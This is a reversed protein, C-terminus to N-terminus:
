YGYPSDLDPMVNSNSTAQRKLYRVGLIEESPISRVEINASKGSSELCIVNGDVLEIFVMFHRRDVGYLSQVKIIAINESELGCQKLRDVSVKECNTIENDQMWVFRLNLSLKNLNIWNIQGNEDFCEGSALEQGYEEFSKQYGCLKLANYPSILACGDKAVMIERGDKSKITSGELNPDKQFVFGKNELALTKLEIM